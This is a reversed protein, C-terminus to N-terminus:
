KETPKGAKEWAKIGGTLNYVKPIKLADLKTCAKASRGGVACYVLYTKKPDLDKVKEDFAKDNFNILVANKLHGAEYEKPTRVDLVVTDPAATLKEFQEADVDKHVTAPADAAFAVCSAALCALMVVLSRVVPASM